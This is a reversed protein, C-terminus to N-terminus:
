ADENWYIKKTHGTTDELALVMGQDDDGYPWVIVWGGFGGGNTDKVFVYNPRTPVVSYGSSSLGELNWCEGWESENKPNRKDLWRKACAIAEEITAKPKM